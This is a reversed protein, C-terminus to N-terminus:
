SAEIRPQPKKERNKEILKEIFEYADKKTAFLNPAVGESGAHGLMVTVRTIEYGYRAVGNPFIYKSCTEKMNARYEDAISPDFVFRSMDVVMYCRGDKCYEELIAKTAAFAKDLDTKSDIVLRSKATLHIIRNRSDFEGVIENEYTM